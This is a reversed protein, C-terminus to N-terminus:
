SVSDNTTKRSAYAGGAVAGVLVTLATGLVDPISGTAIDTVVAAVLSVGALAALVVTDRNM